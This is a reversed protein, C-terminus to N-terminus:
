QNTPRGDSGNANAHEKLMEVYEDPALACVSTLLKLGNNRHGENFSMQMANTNFVSLFVGSQELTRWVIRRGRKTNMLWKTDEQEVIQANRQKRADLKQLREIEDPDLHELDSM